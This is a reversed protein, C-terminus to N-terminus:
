KDSHVLSNKISNWNDENLAYSKYDSLRGKGSALSNAREWDYNAGTEDGAWYKCLGRIAHILEYGPRYNIALDFYKLAKRPNNRLFLLKNGKAFYKKALEVFNVHPSLKFVVSVETEMPVLEGNVNGPIWKGSTLELIRRVENDCDSSVSNIFEFNSLKGDSNVVFKVVETGQLHWQKAREPYTINEQMFDNITQSVGSIFYPPVVNITNLEQNQGSAYTAMLMAALLILKTKM